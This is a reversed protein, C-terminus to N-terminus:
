LIHIYRHQPIFPSGTHNIGNHVTCLAAQMHLSAMIYALMMYAM